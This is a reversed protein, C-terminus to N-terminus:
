LAHFIFFFSLEKSNIFLLPQYNSPSSNNECFYFLCDHIQNTHVRFYRSILIYLVYTQMIYYIRTHPLASTIIFPRLFASSLSRLAKSVTLQYLYILFPNTVNVSVTSCLTCALSATFSSYVNSESSNDGYNESCSNSICNTFLM